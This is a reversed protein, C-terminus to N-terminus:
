EVSLTRKGIDAVSKVHCDCMSTVRRTAQTFSLNTVFPSVVTV